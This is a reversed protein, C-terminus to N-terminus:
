NDGNKEQQKPATSKSKVEGTSENVNQEYDSEHHENKV